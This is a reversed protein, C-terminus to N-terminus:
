PSDSIAYIFGAKLWKLVEKKMGEKMAPNLQRQNEISPVHEEEMLIKHMCISPSIGKIDKISWAFAELNKGLVNLLKIEMDNDLESSIIM